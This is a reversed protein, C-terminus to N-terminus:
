KPGDLPWRISRWSILLISSLLTEKEIGRGLACCQYEIWIIDYNFWKCINPRRGRGQWGVTIMKWFDVSMENKEGCHNAPKPAEGRGGIVMGHDNQFRNLGRGVVVVHFKKQFCRASVTLGFFIWTPLTCPLPLTFQLFIHNLNM